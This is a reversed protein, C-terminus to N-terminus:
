AMDLLHHQPCKKATYDKDWQTKFLVVPRDLKDRTKLVQVPPDFTEQDGELWASCTYPLTELETEVGYESKLRYQLVDFQLRGV